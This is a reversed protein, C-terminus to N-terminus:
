DVDFIAKMESTYVASLRDLCSASELPGSSSGSAEDSSKKPKVSTGKASSGSESLDDIGLTDPLDQSVDGSFFELQILMDISADLDGGNASYVYSISQDSIDPFAIALYVLDMEEDMNQKETVDSPNQSGSDYSGHVQQGKQTFDEAIRLEEIGHIILGSSVEGPLQNQKTGEHGKSSTKSWATESDSTSDKAEQKLLPVFAAAHPNLSSM